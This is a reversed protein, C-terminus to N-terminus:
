SVLRQVGASRAARRDPRGARPARAALGVAERAATSLDGAACDRDRRDRRPGAGDDHALARAGARLARERVASENRFVLFLAGHVSLAVVAFLGLLLTYWHLVGAQGRVSFSTFWPAMFTGSADTPVGRLVNGHEIERGVLFLFLISLLAYLGVFGLTAFATDGQTSGRRRAM